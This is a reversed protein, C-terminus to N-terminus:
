FTTYKILAVKLRLSIKEPFAQPLIARRRIPQQLVGLLLVLM